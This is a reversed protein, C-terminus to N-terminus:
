EAGRTLTPEGWVVVDGADSDDGFDVVLSVEDLGAVDARVPVAGDAATLGVREFLTEGGAEVRVDVVGAEGEGSQLGVRATLTEFGEDVAFTLRTRSGVGFGSAFREGGSRLPRGGPSANVAVVPELDLLPTAEIRPPREALRVSRGGDVRVEDVSEPPLRVSGATGLPRLELTLGDSGAGARGPVRSPGHLDVLLVPGEDGADGSNLATNALVVGRVRELPVTRDEGGLEFTLGDEGIEKLRGSVGRVEGSRGAAYLTDADAPEEIRDVGEEGGLRWLERVLARGAPVDLERGAQAVRVRFDEGDFGLLPGVLRGGLALDARWATEPDAPATLAAEDAPPRGVSLRAMADATLRFAYEGDRPIRVLGSLLAAYGGEPPLEEEGVKTPVGVGSASSEAAVPLSPVDAIEEPPDAARPGATEWRHLRVTLGRQLSKPKDPPRFGDDDLAVPQNEDTWTDAERPRYLLSAPVQQWDPFPPGKVELTLSAPGDLGLPRLYAVHLRHYGKRFKASGESKTVSLSGDEEILRFSAAKPDAAPRPAVKSLAGWPTLTEGVRVGDAAFAADAARTTEGGAPTVDLSWDASLTLLLAALM